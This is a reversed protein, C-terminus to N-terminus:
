AFLRDFQEHDFDIADVIQVVTQGADRAAMIQQWMGPVEIVDELSLGVRERLEQNISEVWTKCKKCM